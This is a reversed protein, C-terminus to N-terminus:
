AEKNIQIGMVKNKLVFLDSYSRNQYLYGDGETHQGPPFFFIASHKIPAIVADPHVMIMNIQKAGAAPVCGDTFDYATKMRGSPVEKITINDLATVRRDVQGNNEQVSLSRSIGTANKLLKATAPTIYLLRGEEPVEAENMNKCMADFVSLINAETLATTDTTGGMAEYETLLKSFRYSDMEPIAHERIFENTVNAAAVAQNTEDVDMTDVLFEVNRDHELKMPQWKNKVNKRNWGGNRDHEGYGGVTVSPIQITDANLFRARDNAKSLDGSLLGKRFVLDLQREFNQAYNFENAM